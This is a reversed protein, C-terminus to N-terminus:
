FKGKVPKREEDNRIYRTCVSLANNLMTENRYVSNMQAFFLLFFCFFLLFFLLFFAFFFCFFFFFAFFILFFFFHIFHLKGYFKPHIVKLVLDEFDFFLKGLKESGPSYLKALRCLILLSDCLFHLCLLYFLLFFFLPFTLSFFLPSFFRISKMFCYCTMMM